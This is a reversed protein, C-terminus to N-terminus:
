GGLSELLACVHEAARRAAAVRGEQEIRPGILELDFAGEYGAELTWGIIRELPVAGDGPVARAPPDGYVYDSVQVLRCRPMAREITERLGAEAWCNFVDINVGIGALEALTTADRLSHAIHVHANTSTASETLLAVGTAEAREVCPAIARSFCEAAEEWSLSGHGGTIVYISRAGLTAAADIVRSLRERPQAWSAENPDLHGEVFAHAITEVAYGGEEVVARAAAVDGGLVPSTFSVRRPQLKRWAEAVEALPAGFFCLANVSIREHM